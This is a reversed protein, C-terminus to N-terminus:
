ARLLAEAALTLSVEFPNRGERRLLDARARWYYKGDIPCDPQNQRHGYVMPCTCREREAM